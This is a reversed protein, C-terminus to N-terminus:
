AEQSSQHETSGAEVEAGTAGTLLNFIRALKESSAKWKQDPGRFAAFFARQTPNRTAMQELVDRGRQIEAPTPQNEKRGKTLPKQVPAAEEPKPPDPLRILDRPVFARWESRFPEWFAMEWEHLIEKLRAVLAEADGAIAMRYVHIAERRADSLNDFAELFDLRWLVGRERLYQMWTIMHGAIAQWYEDPTPTGPWWDKVFEDVSCHKWVEFSKELDEDLQRAALLRRLEEEEERRKRKSAEADFAM